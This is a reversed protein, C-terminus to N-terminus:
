DRAFGAGVSGNGPATSVDGRLSAGAGASGSGLAARGRRRKLGVESHRSHEQGGAVVPELPEGEPEFFADM